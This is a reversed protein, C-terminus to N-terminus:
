NLARVRYYARRKAGCQPCILALERVSGSAHHHLARHEQVKLAHECRHCTLMEARGEIQSASDVEDPREPSGGVELAALKGRAEALKDQDRAAERRSTRERKKKVHGHHTV